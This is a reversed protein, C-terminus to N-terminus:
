NTEKQNQQTSTAPSSKNGQLSYKKEIGLFSRIKTKLSNYFEDFFFNWIYGYQPFRKFALAESQICYRNTRLNQPKVLYKVQEPRPMWHGIVLGPQYFKAQLYVSLLRDIGWSPVWSLPDAIRMNGAIEAVAERVLETKWIRNNFNEMHAGHKDRRKAYPWLVVGMNVPKDFPIIPVEQLTILEEGKDKRPVVRLSDIEPISPWSSKIESDNEVPILRVDLRLIWSDPFKNFYKTTLDVIDPHLIDDDDLAILYKGRVNLFGCMRQPTEGKFMSYVIRVRPDDIEKVEAGPPYAMVFEVDGKIALLQELWYETFKGLTATVISLIPKTLM